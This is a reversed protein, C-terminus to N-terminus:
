VDNMLEVGMQTRNLDPQWDNFCLKDTGTLGVWFEAAVPIDRRQGM